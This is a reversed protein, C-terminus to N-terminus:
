ENVGDFKKYYNIMEKKCILFFNKNKKIVKNNLKM